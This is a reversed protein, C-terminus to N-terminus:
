AARRREPELWATAQGSDRFSGTGRAFKTSLFALVADKMSAYYPPCYPKDVSRRGTGKRDRHACPYGKRAVPPRRPEPTRGGSHPITETTGHSLGSGSAVCLSARRLPPFRWHRSSPEDPRSEPDDRGAGGRRARLAM